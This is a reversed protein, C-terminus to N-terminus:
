FFELAELNSRQINIYILWHIMSDDTKNILNDIFKQYNLLVEIWKNYNWDEFYRYAVYRVWNSYEIM